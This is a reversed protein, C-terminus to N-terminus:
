AELEVIRAKWFRDPRGQELLVSRRVEDPIPPIPLLGLSSEVLRQTIDRAAIALCAVEVREAPFFEFCHM